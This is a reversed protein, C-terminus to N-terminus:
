IAADLWTLPGCHGTELCSFATMPENEQLLDRITISAQASQEQLDGVLQMTDGRSRRPIGHLSRCPRFGRGPPTPAPAGPTSTSRRPKGAPRTNPTGRGARLLARFYGHELARLPRRPESGGHATTPSRKVGGPGRDQPHPVRHILRTVPAECLAMTVYVHEAQLDLKDSIKEVIPNGAPSIPEFLQV